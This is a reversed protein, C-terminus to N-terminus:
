GNLDKMEEDSLDDVYVVFRQGNLEVTLEFWGEGEDSKSILKGCEMIVYYFTGVVEEKDKNGLIYNSLDNRYDRIVACDEYKEARELEDKTADLIDVMAFLQDQSLEDPIYLKM